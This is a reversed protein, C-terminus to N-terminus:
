LLRAGLPVSQDPVCLAVQGHANHFGTVLYESMLPGVQKRPFNIVAVVLKGVLDQPQYLATIQASSKKIGMEEGFDVHLAYAPKCAEQFVFAEVVRGVRLAVKLFDDWSIAEMTKGMIWFIATGRACPSSAGAQLLRAM